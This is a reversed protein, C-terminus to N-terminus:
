DAARRRRGSRRPLAGHSHTGARSARAGRPTRAGAGAAASRRGPAAAAEPAAADVLALLAHGLRGRPDRGLRERRSAWRNHRPSPPSDGLLAGIRAILKSPSFPKTLLASGLEQAEDLIRE